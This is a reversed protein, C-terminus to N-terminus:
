PKPPTGWLARHTECYAHGTEDRSTTRAAGCEWCVVDTSPMNVPDPHARVLARRRAYWSAMPEGAEEWPRNASDRFQKPTVLIEMNLAVRAM